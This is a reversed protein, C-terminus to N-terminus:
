MKMDFVVAHTSGLSNNLIVEWAELKFPEIHIWENLVSCDLIFRRKGASDIKVSIPNVCFPVYDVASIIGFKKFKKLSDRIFDENEISENVTKSNKLTYSIPNAKFPIKYGHLNEIIDDPCGLKDKWFDKALHMQGVIVPEAKNMIFNAYM